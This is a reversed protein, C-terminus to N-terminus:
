SPSALSGVGPAPQSDSSAGVNVHPQLDADVARRDDFVFCKGDFHAQGCEEFYKLIGGDLQYVNPLGAERLYIAAKECRIGGTCFSVVTKGALADLNAQMAQPFETFKAIRWDIANNFTGMEVEFVNRTDLTVVPQGADDHGSDLWRKLTAADVAPARGASPQIAPHNMRIIEPKVKVLLKRFPQAASRSEKAQLDAFRSDTRLWALFDHIASSEAALFLNIGEEALLVTGKIARAALAERVAAKLEPLKDLAVFKYAAINLIQM